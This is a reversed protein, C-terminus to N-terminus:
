KIMELSFQLIRSIKENCTTKDAKNCFKLKLQAVHVSTCLKLEAAQVTLRHASEWAFESGLMCPTSCSPIELSHWDTGPSLVARLM